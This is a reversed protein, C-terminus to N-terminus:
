TFPPLLRASYLPDSPDDTRREKCDMSPSRFVWESPSSLLVFVFTSNGTRTTEM